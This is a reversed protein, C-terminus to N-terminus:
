RRQLDSLSFYAEGQIAKKGIMAPMKAQGYIIELDVHYLQTNPDFQTDRMYSQWKKLWGSTRLGKFNTFPRVGTIRIDKLLTDLSTYTLTIKEIHMVTEIFGAAHLANGFTKIEPFVNFQLSNENEILNLLSDFGIISLMLHANPKLTQWCLDIVKGIEYEDQICLNSLLLDAQHDPEDCLQAYIGKTPNLELIHARPFQTHLARTLYGDRPFLNVIKTPDFTPDDLYSILRDAIEHQLVAHEAYAQNLYLTNRSTM